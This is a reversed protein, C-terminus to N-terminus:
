PISLTVSKAIPPMYTITAYSDKERDTDDVFAVYTDSYQVLQQLDQQNMAVLIILM